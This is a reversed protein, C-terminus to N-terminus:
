NLRRDAAVHPGVLSVWGVVGLIAVVVGITVVALLLSM